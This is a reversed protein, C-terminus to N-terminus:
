LYEKIIQWESILKDISFVANAPSTSPLYIAAKGIISANHRCYLGHAKKGNTFIAKIDASQLICNLDNVRVNKISTDASGEIECEGIVDWLAIGASLLMETKESVSNPLPVRLVSSLVIWFRNQKHAYFFEEERSKVSPFSGLILIKSNKDYIPPIPHIIRSM